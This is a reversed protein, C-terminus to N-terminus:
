CAGRSERPTVEEPLPARRALLHKAPSRASSDALGAAAADNGTIEM